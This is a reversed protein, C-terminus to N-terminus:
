VRETALIKMEHKVEFLELVHVIQYTTTGRVLRSEPTVSDNWRMRIEHSVLANAGDMARNENGSVPKIECWTTLATTWTDVLGGGPLAQAQTRNQIQVRHRNRGARIM